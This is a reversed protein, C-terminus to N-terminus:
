WLVQVVIAMRHKKWIYVMRMGKRDDTRGRVDLDYGSERQVM